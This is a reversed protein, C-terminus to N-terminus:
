RENEQRSLDLTLTMQADGSGVNVIQKFQSVKEMLGSDVTRPNTRNYMSLRLEYPGPMLGELIFNGRTDVDSGTGTMVTGEVRTARLYFRSGEPVVGGIIKLQGRLVATGYGIFVRVNTIHEGPGVEIGERHIVGNREVRLLTFRRDGVTSVSIQTKGPRLGSLRFGGRPNIRTVRRPVNFEDTRSHATLGFKLMKSIIAPDDTGEILVVGSISGGRRLRVEIGSVDSETIEFPTFDSYYDSGEETTAFVAYKGPIIGRLRFEGQASSREGMSGYGSIGRGGPIVSGHQIQAGIVPQGSDADIVRGSVQFGKMAEGVSIDIGTVEDGESLEIVKAQSENMVDPHYTQPFYRASSIAYTGDKQSIGASVLYRGSPLGYLRYIGRDDTRYMYYNYGTSFPQRKGGEDARWLRVNEEILPQGNSNTIRGTIVGGLKLAFDINEINEGEGINISKGM